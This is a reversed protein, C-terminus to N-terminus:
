SNGPIRKWVRCEAGSYEPDQLSSQNRALGEFGGLDGTKILEKIINIACVGPAIPSSDILFERCIEEAARFNRFPIQFGWKEIGTVRAIRSDSRLVAILIQGTGVKEPCRM